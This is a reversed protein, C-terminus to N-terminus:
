LSELGICSETRRAAGRERGANVCGAGRVLGWARACPRTNEDLEPTIGEYKFSCFDLTLSWFDSLLAVHLTQMM